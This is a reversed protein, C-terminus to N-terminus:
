FDKTITKVCAFVWIVNSEALVANCQLKSYFVSKTYFSFSYYQLTIPAVPCYRLCWMLGGLLCFHWQPCTIEAWLPTQLQRPFPIANFHFTNRLESITPPISIASYRFIGSSWSASTPHRSLLGNSCTRLPVSSLLDPNPETNSHCLHHFRPEPYHSFIHQKNPLDQWVCLQGSFFLPFTYIYIFYFM